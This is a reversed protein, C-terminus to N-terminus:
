PATVRVRLFLRQAIGAPAYFTFNPPVSSNPIANWSAPTLDNSYEAIYTIGAVGAPMTFRLVYDDDSLQWSPLASTGAQLPRLGFAFEILNELGDGDPDANDAASGVPATSGFYLQRWEEVATLRTLTDTFGTGADVFAVTRGAPTGATLVPVPSTRMTSTGDGVEGYTNDGWAFVEGGSTLVVCHDRGAAVSVPIRGTLAGNMFVAMPLPHSVTTGDGLQGLANSGWSFLQSDSTLALTQAYGADVATVVKGSLAGSM